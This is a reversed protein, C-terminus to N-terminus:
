QATLLDRKPPAELYPFDQKAEIMLNHTADEIRDEIAKLIKKEPLGQEIVPLFEFVVKGPKKIFSNRAWFMGSNLALPVIPMDSNQYMKVIGGKYPKQKTTSQVDVRTGQPFIVIPRKQTKMRAAGEIISKVAEEKNSRNIPIVDLKKLFSGFLPIGLLEKKLVITPDGLLAHLKLTEYASQHKSAVIFSQDKPLHEQGRIEYKLGLVYRATLETCWLYFRTLALIFPRSLLLAPVFLICIIATLSYFCINFAISRLIIM